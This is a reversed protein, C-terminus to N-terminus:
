RKGRKLRRSWLYVGILTLIITLVAILDAFYVGALGFLRGSHTDLIVQELTPGQGRYKAELNQQQEIPLSTEKAWNITQNTVELIEWDTLDGNAQYSKKATQIILKENLWAMKQLIQPTKLRDILEGQLTFLHVQDQTGIMYMNDNRLAAIILKSQKSLIQDNLHLADGYQIIWDSKFRFSKGLEPKSLGYLRFLVGIDVHKEDLKLDETHNLFIGTASLWVLSIAVALGLYRHIKYFLAIKM